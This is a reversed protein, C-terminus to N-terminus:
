TNCRAYGCSLGYLCFGYMYLSFMIECNYGAPLVVCVVEYYLTCAFFLLEFCALETITKRLWVRMHSDPEALSTWEQILFMLCSWHTGIRLMVRM